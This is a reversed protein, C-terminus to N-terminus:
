QCNIQRLESGPFDPKLRDFTDLQNLAINKLMYSTQGGEHNRRGKVASHVGRQQLDNLFRTALAEDKFVGLSIAYRWTSEQVIYTEEVGLGKLEDVKLQADEQSKRPPIYVWFRVAEQPMKQHAVAQLSLRDLAAKARAADTAAFSGWEYCAAPQPVAMSTPSLAPSANEPAPQPPEAKKPMASLQEPTLIKIKQPELPEHGAASEAHRTGVLQFFTLLLANALLLFWVLWKM